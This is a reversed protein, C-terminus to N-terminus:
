RTEPEVIWTPPAVGFPAASVFTSGNSTWMVEQGTILNSWLISNTRNGNVNPTGRIRWDLSVAGPFWQTAITFGNMIWAGVSGDVTNRWLIDQKGDGNFDGFGVIAWTLPASGLSGNAVIADGGLRWARIEGSNQNRWILEPHGDGFLDTTGALNWDLGAVGMFESSFSFPSTSRWVRVEGTVVNRWVIDAFGNHDLDAVGTISWQLGPSPLQHSVFSDGRMTWIAITGDNINEWLIDSFGDGDFDGIGVIKWELGVTAVGDNSLISSGSMYWIRLEGTQTNRWLIDQKGDRNFDGSYSIFNTFVPGPSPVTPPPSTPPPNTVTPPFPGVQVTSAVSPVGNTDVLFLMYNGPPALNADVPSAITLSGAVASFALPVFHQGMDIAHTVSGFRILSVKAIKAADPTYVLFNQGYGLKSPASAIAPRPGKFLYPPLFFEASLQDTPEDVGNFRGGGSVLVRGDPLLLAISHYLRPANMSALATWTETNPSWVEAPLVADAIGLADTTTGGGTVLVNGDPLITANQYTRPFVMSQVQRWIPTSQAMDLVYATAVSNRVGTDPDVSTGMKLFKGPLYMVTSGGDVAAGGVATWALAKLDLVESVIPAEGDAPVIIRGDPLLFVHPYYPFLFPSNSLMSWSNTMPNYIEQIQVDREAGDAEGSTVIIRGDSLMTATPYWRPFAMDPVPTWSQTSPDFVNAAFLGVHPGNHGGVVLIKGDAMQEMGNCFINVPAPVSAVSNTAPDWVIAIDGRSQGDSMLIKGGPLLAAHVSVNPLPVTGSWMGSQAPDGVSANPAALIFMLWLGRALGSEWHHLKRRCPSLVRDCDLRDAAVSM